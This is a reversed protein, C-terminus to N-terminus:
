LTVVKYTQKIVSQAVNYVPIGKQTAGVARGAHAHGHFVIDAGAADIADGFYSSGMFPHLSPHEGDVTEIIPAYHLLAIKVDTTLKALVRRLTDAQERARAAFLRLEPEGFEHLAGEKFGGVFGKIGAIGVTRGLVVLTSVEGELVVVGCKELKERIGLQQDNHYDHNGLVAIVPIKLHCIDKVFATIESVDGSQTLDGALLLLDAENNLRLLDARYQDRKTAGYHLDGVAAIRLM